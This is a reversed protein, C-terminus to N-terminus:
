TPSGLVAVKGQAASIRAAIERQADDWTVDALAGDAGRKQPGRHRDPHFTRGISAQGRACLKGRNVPHEPNGELKIPRSERTRVHLGCASACEQCTSAYVVPMGPIIEEAQIVYPILKEPLDSYRYCGTAAAAGASVGVLKLFERRDIESM